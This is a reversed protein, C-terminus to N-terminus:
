RPRDPWKEMLMLWQLPVNHSITNKKIQNCKGTSRIRKSLINDNPSARLSRTNRKLFLGKFAFHCHQDVIHLTNAIERLLLDPFQIQSRFTGDLHCHGAVFSSAADEPFAGPLISDPV